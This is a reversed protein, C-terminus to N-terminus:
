GCNLIYSSRDTLPSLGSRDATLLQGLTQVHATFLEFSQLLPFQM